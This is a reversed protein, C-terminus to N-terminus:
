STWCKTPSVLSQLSTSSLLPFCRGTGKIPLMPRYPSPLPPSTLIKLVDGVAKPALVDKVLAEQKTRGLTMKKVMKSDSLTKQNLKHGCDASNYSLNHKVTHYVQTVEAATISDIEPSTEAIFFQSVPAQSRQTRINRSHLDGAAHQKVDSLGGHSVSFTRRCAKCNAKYDDEPVRDLWQNAEEWERRYKQQRHKRKQPRPPTDSSM